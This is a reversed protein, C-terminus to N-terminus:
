DGETRWLVMHEGESAAQVLCRQRAAGTWPIELWTGSPDPRSVEVELDAGALCVGVQVPQVTTGSGTPVLAIHTAVDPVDITTADTVSGATLRLLGGASATVIVPAGDADSLVVWRDCPACCPRRSTM